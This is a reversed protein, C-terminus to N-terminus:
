PLNGVLNLVPHDNPNCHKKCWSDKHGAFHMKDVVIECNAIQKTFTTLDKRSPHNTYKRLHCGDDYCLRNM